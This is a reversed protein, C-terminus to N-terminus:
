ASLSAQTGLADIMAAVPQLRHELEALLVRQLMVGVTAPLYQPISRLQDQAAAGTVQRPPRLAKFHHELLVPVRALLRRQHAGLADDMAADLAALRGLETSVGAVAARVDARLSAVRDEMTRQHALYRQRWASFDM